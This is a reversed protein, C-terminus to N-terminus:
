FEFFLAQVGLDWSEVSLGGVLTQLMRCKSTEDPTQQYLHSPRLYPRWKLSPHFLSSMSIMNSAKQTRLEYVAIKPAAFFM